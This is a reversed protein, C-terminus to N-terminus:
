AIEAWMGPPQEFSGLLSRGDSRIPTGNVLVHRVGTPEEATLREAGAPFDRVRRLPGPGVTQPDFVCVDARYGERLYGRGVFGFIDAPEGSMKRVARELPMLRRERVWTGLLDTYLPADCLQDVHAGADSLGLAVQPHTLLHGVAAVDDNAIYARFRTELDEALALECMVDLPGCGREEALEAVRRGQLEPFRESESVEFTDWRPKMEAQELDAAARKRWDPDRFAALRAEHGQRMLEGFVKGVNLSYADEMTFQMTLPRPTVQPWLQLGRSVGDEHLELQALHRGGPAAFLPWTFPRGVRPQLEYLDAYGCQEGPVAVLVVGKRAEGAALFLAEVERRDAFRSPVPKGDMGRHTYAFSTSFGAAGADIAERVLQCMREIEPATATREYAADGMVYLRLATHGVYTTFNLVTGRRRISERYQPYTEFDWPIGQALSAGDMDEVNELTRAIVEHHEPRTPAITFGCNGAVVTTVGHSSSPRLAPDWFVQADYHTHIDIFGPTVACGSADLERKGRLRPGIERIVGAAIAVDAVRGPAGSGDFVTGGRIVVDASM